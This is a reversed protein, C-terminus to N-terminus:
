RRVASLYTDVLRPVSRRTNLELTENTENEECFALFSVSRSGDFHGRSFDGSLEVISTYTLNRLSGCLM